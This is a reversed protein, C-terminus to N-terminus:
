APTLSLFMIGYRTVGRIDSWKNALAKGASEMVALYVPGTGTADNKVGEYLGYYEPVVVGQLQRLPGDFLNAENMICDVITQRDEEVDLHIQAPDCLKVIIDRVETSPATSLPSSTNHESSLVSSRAPSTISSRAPSTNVSSSIDKGPAPPPVTVEMSKAWHSSAWQVVLTEANSPGHLEAAYTTWVRGQGGPMPQGIVLRCMSDSTAGPEM